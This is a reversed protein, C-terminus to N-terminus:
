QIKLIVLRSVPGDPIVAPAHKGHSKGKSEWKLVYQVADEQIGGSDGVLNVSLGPTNSIHDRIGDPYQPEIRAMAQVHELTMTDLTYRGSGGEETGWHVVILGDESIGALRFHGGETM